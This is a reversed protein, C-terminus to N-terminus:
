IVIQILYRLVTIFLFEFLHSTLESTLVQYACVLLTDFCSDLAISLSVRFVNNTNCIYICIYISM